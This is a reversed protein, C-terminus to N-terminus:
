TNTRKKYNMEFFNNYKYIYLIEILIYRNIRHYIPNLVTLSATRESSIIDIGVPILKYQFCSKSFM